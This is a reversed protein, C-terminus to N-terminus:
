RYTAWCGPAEQLSVGLLEVHRPLRPAVHDHIYAAVREASPNLDAFVPLANLDADRLPAIAEDVLRQLQHFDMVLGHEDLEEAGVRVHVQWDHVHPPEVEGAIALAHTANFSREVKLEYM